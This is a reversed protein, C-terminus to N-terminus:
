EAMVATTSKSRYQKWIVALVAFLTLSYSISSMASAGKIGFTPIAWFNLGINLIVSTLWIWVVIVPYGMSNLFQVITTEIGLAFIGPVLWIFADSAPLFLKGFLLRITIPALVVALALVPLLALGTGVAARKAQRLKEATDRMASLRPFLILGIVSPLLLIYDAMSAAVSYYGTQESGLMYKVMLLDIRLLLFSCFVIIYAKLGLGFHQRLLKLSPRPVDPLLRWLAKLAWILSLTLGCINAAFVYEPNVRRVFIVMGIFILSFAKSMFEIKNFVRVQQLGLLLNETLLFALGIPIWALGLVLLPGHLPAHQPEFYFFLGAALAGVGGIVTSVLLSNALLTPLLTQDHAVYFTNSSNLGFNGFQVGLVGIAMAVAYLGRGEPGLVRTVAVTTILGVAMLSIQTSYTEIVKRFFDSSKWLDQCRQIPGPVAHNLPLSLAPLSLPKSAASLEHDFGNNESSQLPVTTGLTGSNQSQTM